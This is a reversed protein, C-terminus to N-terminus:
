GTLTKMLCITFDDAPFWRDFVVAIGKVQLKGRLLKSLGEKALSPTTFSIEFFHQPSTRVGVCNISEIGGRQPERTV